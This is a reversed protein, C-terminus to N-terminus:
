RPIAEMYLRRRASGMGLIESESWGYAIALATIEGVLRQALAAIERWFFDGIDLFVWWDEGCAACSLDVRLEAGPDRELMAAGLAAVAEEPLEEPALGAGERRCSLVCRRLLLLRAAAVDSAARAAELDGGDPLRWVIEIGEATLSAPPNEAGPPPPLLGPGQLHFQLRVGCRPCFTRGKLDPGLTQCRLALLEADRAGLPLAALRERPQEPHSLGLLLLARGHADQEQGREWVQLIRRASLNEM